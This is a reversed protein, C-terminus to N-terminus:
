TMVHICFLERECVLDGSYPLRNYFRLRCTTHPHNEDVCFVAELVGSVITERITGFARLM